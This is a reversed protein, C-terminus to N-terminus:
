EPGSAVVLPIKPGTKHFKCLNLRVPTKRMHAVANRKNVVKSDATKKEETSPSSTGYDALSSKEDLAWMSIWENLAMPVKWFHDQM